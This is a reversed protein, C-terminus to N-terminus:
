GAAAALVEADRVVLRRPGLEISGRAVLAALAKNVTERAAGVFQALEDQTLGHDVVVSGDDEVRGLQDSLRQVLRAVRTPVDSFVMEGVVENSARLRRALVGLLVGISAPHEILWADFRERSLELVVADSVATVTADRESEDLMSLEGFLDDAGLLAVIRQRGAPTRRSVKLAGSEVVYLSSAATGEEFLVQRPTLRVPDMTDRIANLVDAPTTSM